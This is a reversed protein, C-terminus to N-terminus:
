IFISYNIVPNVETVIYKTDQIAQFHTNNM